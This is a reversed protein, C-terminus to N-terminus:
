RDAVRDDLFVAPLYRDLGSFSLSGREFYSDRELGTRGDALSSWVPLLSASTWGLGSISLGLPLLAHAFFDQYYIVFWRIQSKQPTHEAVLVLCERGIAARRRQFDELALIYTQDDRILAHGTHTPDLQQLGRQRES